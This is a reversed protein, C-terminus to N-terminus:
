EMFFSDTTVATNKTNKAINAFMKCAWSMAGCPRRVRAVFVGTIVASTTLAVVM